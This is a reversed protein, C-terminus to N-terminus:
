AAELPLQIAFVTDCLWSQTYDREAVAFMENTTRNFTMAPDPVSIDSRWITVVPTMFAWVSGAAPAVGAPGTIDYGAGFSWVSGIPTVLHAPVDPTDPRILMNGFAAAGEAATNVHITGQYGYVAYFAAELAAVRAGFGTAASPAVVTGVNSTLNPTAGVGAGNWLAREVVTQEGGLLKASVRRAHEQADRGVPACVGSAYVTFPATPMTDTDDDFTKLDQNTIPCEATYPRAIGCADPQFEVGGVRAHDPIPLINAANFLGYRLVGPSPADVLVPPTIAAM